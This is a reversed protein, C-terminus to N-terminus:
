SPPYFRQRADRLHDDQHAPLTARADGEWNYAQPDVVVSKLATSANDGELCAAARSYNRPVVVGRAYPDLLVKTADFRMGASPEFPGYARYGYLQGAELDPVYVHWYHYSRNTAPDLMISRAPQADDERDFLLLEVGSANRSYVSSHVGGPVATAGIPASRGRSQAGGVAAPTTGKATAKDHVVVGM